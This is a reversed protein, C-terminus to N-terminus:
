ENLIKRCSPVIGTKFWRCPIKKNANDRFKDIIQLKQIIQAFKKHTNEGRSNRRARGFFHELTISGIRGISFSDEVYAIIGIIGFFYNSSHIIMNKTFMFQEKNNYKNTLLISYAWLCGFLGAYCLVLYQERTLNKERLTLNMVTGILIFSILEPLGEQPKYKATEILQLTNSANFIKTPHWDNMSVLNNDEFVPDPINPCIKRFLQVSIKAGKPIVILNNHSIFRKRLRKLIHSPDNFLNPYDVNFFKHVQLSSTSNVFKTWEDFYLSQKESYCPDADFGDGLYKLKCDRIATRVLELNEVFKFPASGNYHYFIHSVFPKHHNLPLVMVVFAAGVLQKHEKMDYFLKEYLLPNERYEITPKPLQYHDLAGWQIGDENIVLDLDFAIADYCITSYEGEAINNNKIWFMIVDKVKSINKIQEHTPVILNIDNKIWQYVTSRSPGKLMRRTEDFHDCGKILQKIWFLKNEIEYRKKYKVNRQSYNHMLETSVDNDLFNLFDSIKNEMMEENKAVKEKLENIKLNKNNLLRNLRM